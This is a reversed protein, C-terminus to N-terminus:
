SLRTEGNQIKEIVAERSISADVDNPTAVSDGTYACKAVDADESHENNM